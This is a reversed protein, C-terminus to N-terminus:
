DPMQLLSEALGLHVLEEASLVTHCEMLTQVQHQTLRGNSNDAVIRAYQADKLADEKAMASLEAATYRTSPDFHRGAPHLLLTTHQSVLRRTGSLFIIIGSSDVDGTAITTLAPRLVTRVMDYFSMAIGSQGGPSSVVLTLPAGANRAIHAKMDSLVRGNTAYTVSGFYELTHTARLALPSPFPVHTAPHPQPSRLTDHSMRAYTYARARGPNM